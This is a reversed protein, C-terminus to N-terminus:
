SPIEVKICDVFYGKKLEITLQEAHRKCNVEDDYDMLKYMLFGNSIVLYFIVTSM